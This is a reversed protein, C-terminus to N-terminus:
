RQNWSNSVLFRSLPSAIKPLMLKGSTAKAGGAATADFYQDELLPVAQSPVFHRRPEAWSHGLQSLSRSRVTAHAPGCTERSRVTTGSVSRLPNSFASPEIPPTYALGSSRGDRGAGNSSWGRPPRKWPQRLASYWSQLREPSSM